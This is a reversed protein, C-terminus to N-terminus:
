RRRGDEGERIRKKYDEVHVPYKEKQWDAYRKGKRQYELEIKEIKNFPEEM